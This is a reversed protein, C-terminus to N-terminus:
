IGTNLSYGRAQDVFFHVRFSYSMNYDLSSSVVYLVYHSNMIYSNLVCELSFAKFALKNFHQTSINVFM